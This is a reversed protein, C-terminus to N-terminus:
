LRSDWREFSTKGFIFLLAISTSDSDQEIRITLNRLWKKKYYSKGIINLFIDIRIGNTPTENM